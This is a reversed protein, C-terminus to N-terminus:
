LSSRWGIAFFHAYEDFDCFKNNHNYQTPQNPVSNYAGFMKSNNAQLSDADTFFTQVFM